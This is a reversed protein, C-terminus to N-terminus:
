LELQRCIIKGNGLEQLFDELPKAAVRPITGTINIEAAFEENESNFGISDLFKKCSAYINYSVSFSIRNMPILEITQASEIAAKAAESYAHVLGGTGLKTGGFWRAVTILTNTLGSGLLVALVPKGATGSPEGDDSCGSINQQNGTTFAYVIHGGNDYNEKRWHWLDKAEEPSSVPIAEALFRSNKVRTEASSIKQLILM